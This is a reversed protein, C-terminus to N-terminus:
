AVVELRAIETEPTDLLAAGSALVFTSKSTPAVFDTKQM